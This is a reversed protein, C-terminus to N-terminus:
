FALTDAVSAFRGSPNTYIKMKGTQTDTVTLTYEVNSLAGYFLWFHGNVPTGDLAKVVLEVNSANFFWFSGTTGTDTSLPVATGQGTNGQFDKWTVEVAFRGDGLCLRQAAPECPVTAARGQRTSVLPLPSPAAVAAPLPPNAESAGLPGFAHTDGVSALQGLPNFYRRTLGTQTDTVTLNYEVNSLAGYFVWVHGNVGQGDLVKVIVEVNSDSFFWFYGTDASLPVATGTGSQGQATLWAAEVQYRGGSLCLRNPSPRCGGSGGLPLSWPERGTLGDDATFFLHDGAVTLDRPQSSGGDPALDDVMRTGEATGDSEWLEMGHFGDNAAFYLKGNAATPGDQIASGPGPFIDVALRTGAATGDSTWLERGHVGDDAAFFLHGALVTLGFRISRTTDVRDAFDQLVATGATTGDSRWLAWRDLDSAFFYVAGQYATLEQAPGVAKIQSTGAATGDSRWLGGAAFLVSSGLRVLETLNNIGSVLKRTGGVTGDTRWLEPAGPVYGTYYVEDGAARMSEIGDLSPLDLAQVTGEPTGDSWWLSSHGAVTMPVLLRGHFEVSVKPSAYDSRSTLHTLQVPTGGDTSWLQAIQGADDELFFLHGTASFLDRSSDVGPPVPVTSEPTDASEWLASRKGDYANFFLLGGVATPERLDSGPAATTLDALLHTEGDRTVWLEDGHRDTGVFFISKGAAVVPGSLPHGDAMGTLRRTGAETGDSSWIELGHAADMWFFAIRGQLAQFLHEDSGSNSFAFSHTGAATGDTSWLKVPGAYFVKTGIQVLETDFSRLDCDASGCLRFPTTSEPRGDSMWLRTSTLGDTARFLIKGGAEAVDTAKIGELANFFGFDSVRVTGAVTGDSRWLEFGHHVDNAVFYVRGGIAKMWDTEQFPNPADFQTLARTGAATGDSVWLESGAGPATAPAVFLLKDGAATLLSPSVSWGGLMATSGTKIDYTWLWAKGADSALDYLRNGALTLPSFFRPSDALSIKRTHAPTGDSQWLECTGDGQCPRFYVAQDTIVLPPGDQLNGVGLDPRGPILLVTGARSGDSSWLQRFNPSEETFSSFLLRGNFTGLIEMPGAVSCGTQCDQHILRTGAGTGDSVWLGDPGNHVQALFAIQDNFPVLQRFYSSTYPQTGAAIDRLLVPTGTQAAAPAAILSLLLALRPSCRLRQPM